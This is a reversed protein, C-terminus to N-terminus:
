PAAKPAPFGVLIHAWCVASALRQILRDVEPTLAELFWKQIVVGDPFRASVARFACVTFAKAIAFEPLIFGADDTRELAIHHGESNVVASCVGVGMENSKEVVAEFFPRCDALRLKSM